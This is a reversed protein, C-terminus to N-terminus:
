GDGSRVRIRSLHGAMTLLVVPATLVAAQYLRKRLRNEEEDRALGEREEVDDLSRPSDDDAPALADYGEKRVADRLQGPNTLGPNFVVAARSTAFNVSAKAVGPVSQLTKEIRGACSACHMGLLPLEVRTLDFHSPSSM